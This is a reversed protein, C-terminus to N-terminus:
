KNTFEKVLRLPYSKDLFIIEKPDFLLKGEQLLKQEKVPIQLKENIAHKLDLINAELSLSFTHLYNEFMLHVIGLSM